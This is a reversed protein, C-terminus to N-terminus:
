NDLVIRYRAKGDELHAFAENIESFPFHETEAEIGHRAAFEVMKRLTAPSGVPSGSFSLQGFLFPIYDVEFPELLAGVQHFRGKPRLTSVFPNWDLNVNVTSIIIDFSGAAAKLEDPDKSNLTDHAGMSLAEKKKADTSTMATVHCGWAQCFKLALHGLGGIGIVAVRSTPQINYQVLPNFITIGGCFLPGAKKGDMSSPLPIVSAAQARVRDGFGGHHSVITPQSQRCLNHDGDMCADCTLCYGAHWGLGVRQGAKLHRVANGAERVTGVVEHGGVFPYATMGWDNNLMSLDSHCIGCSEVEIEVGDAALEGPDYEFKEIKGGPEQAAYAKIM